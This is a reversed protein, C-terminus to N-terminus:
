DEKVVGRSLTVDSIADIGVMVAKEVFGAPAQASYGENLKGIYALNNGIHISSGPGGKYGSIVVSGRDIAAQANVAATSGGAGPTYPDITGEAARNLEVQWNSRARGTDVPTALVVTADVALACKRVTRDANAEITQGIKRIRGAFSHFDNAM